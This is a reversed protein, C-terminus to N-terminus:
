PILLRKALRFTEGIKVRAIPNGNLYRGSPHPCELVKLDPRAAVVDNLLTLSNKGVFVLVKLEPFLHLLKPIYPSARRVDNATIRGLRRDDGVYWPVANWIAIETRNFKSKLIFDFLNRATSDPNNISVFGSDRAQRGPSELLFLCRANVGGDCPDFDPVFFGAGLKKRLLVVYSRLPKIHPEVLKLRRANRVELDGLSISSSECRNDARITM